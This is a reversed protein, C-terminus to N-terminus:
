LRFNRRILSPPLVDYHSRRDSQSLSVSVVVELILELLMRSMYVLALSGVQLKMLYDLHQKGSDRYDCGALSVKLFEFPFCVVVQGLEGIWVAFRFRVAKGMM